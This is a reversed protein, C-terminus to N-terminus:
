VLVWWNGDDGCVAQRYPNYLTIVTGPALLEGSDPHYCGSPPPPFLPPPMAGAPASAVTLGAIALSGALALRFITRM